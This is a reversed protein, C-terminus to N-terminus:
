PPSVGELRELRAKLQRIEAEQAQSRQNQKQIENLLLPTLQAYDVRKPQGDEDYGVLEPLVQAVEEAILGFHTREPGGWYGERFRFRVPRLEMLDGTSDDLDQIDEKFRSSSPVCEGLRENDDARM